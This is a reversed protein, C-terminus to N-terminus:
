YTTQNPGVGEICLWKLGCGEVYVGLQGMGM